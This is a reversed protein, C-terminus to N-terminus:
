IVSRKWHLPLGIKEWEANVKDRIDAIVKMMENTDGICNTDFMFGTKYCRLKCNGSIWCGFRSEPPCNETGENEWAKEFFRENPVLWAWKTYYTLDDNPYAHKLYIHLADRYMQQTIM